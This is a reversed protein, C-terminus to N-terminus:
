TTRKMPVGGWGWGVYLYGALRRNTRRAQEQKWCEEDRAKRRRKCCNAYKHMKKKAYYWGLGDHNGLCESRSDGGGHEARGENGGLGRRGAVRQLLSARSVRGKAADDGAVEGLAGAIGEVVEVAGADAVAAVAGGEGDGLAGIGGGDHGVLVDEEAADVDGHLSSGLLADDSADDELGVVEVLDVPLPNTGVVGLGLGVVEGLAIGGGVVAAAEGGDAVRQAGEVGVGDLPSRGGDVPEDVVSDDAGDSGGIGSSGAVLVGLSGHLDLQAGPVGSSRAAGLAGALPSTAVGVEGLSWEDGVVLADGDGVVGTAVLGSAAVDLLVGVAVM